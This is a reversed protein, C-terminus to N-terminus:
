NRKFISDLRLTKLIQISSTRTKKFFLPIIIAVIIQSALTAMAAGIGGFNPILFINLVVNVIAGVMMFILTYKQLGETILWVARASGLLAFTGAWVSISLISAAELYDVGYLITVILKSMFLIAVGFGISIWTIITYLLQVSNIYKEENINKNNMIVPKFSTIIALPVFYWMEAIAVAASYIGVESKTQMMAGLMVQDIRMYLTVMLGSLILYWSQSLISKAYNFSFTWYSKEERVKFYAIMLAGSIIIADLTYILSYLFLTGKNVVLLIKLTAIIVYVPMRILSYVKAKQNAHIWYEIVDFSKVIMTFSMVLILLHMNSDSPELIRILVVAIITLVIGGFVRLVLSTCLIVGENVKKDIISKVTLTELGLTSVATFLSVFALAYNFQGYQEPGFYRAIIATVFVGIAMMFVKDSVLWSANKILKTAVDKKSFWNKVTKMKHKYAM